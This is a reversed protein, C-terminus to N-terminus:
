RAKTNAQGNHGDIRLSLDLTPYCPSLPLTLILVRRNPTQALALQAEFGTCTKSVILMALIKSSDRMVDECVCVAMQVAVM